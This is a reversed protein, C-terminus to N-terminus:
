VAPLILDAHWFRQLDKILCLFKELDVPKTVFGDVQLQEARIMDEHDKSATMVVVPIEQLDSDTKVEALVERGDPTKLDIITARKGQNVDIGFWMTMRPGAQPAPADVRIVDAGYEALTRAAVPGAIVNSLDLVRVGSLISM